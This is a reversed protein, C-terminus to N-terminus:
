GELSYGIDRGQNERGLQVLRRRMGEATRREKGEGLVSFDCRDVWDGVGHQLVNRAREQSGEVHGVSGHLTMREKEGDYVGRHLINNDYFVVDGAKLQVKVQGPLNEDFPDADREAQTRARKHSGPVVVLSDDDWLPLNWQTHVYRDGERKLRATEEEPTASWPIDDRHWRLAFGKKKKKKKKEKGKEEEKEEEEWGADPRVLMNCLEMTMKGDGEGDEDGDGIELFERAVRLLREHFYLRVFAARDEQQPVPLDPHLLHQVGWIGVGGEGQKKKVLSADWPPFQKGVTRVHPWDGARAVATLRAAASRLTGLEDRTLVSPIIVFGDQRLRTLLPSPAESPAARTTAM